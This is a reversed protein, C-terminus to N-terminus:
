VDSHFEKLEEPDDITDCHVRVRDASAPYKKQFRRLAARAKSRTSFSSAGDVWGSNDDSYRCLLWVKKM